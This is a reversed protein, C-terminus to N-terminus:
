TPLEEVVFRRGDAVWVDTADGPKVVSVTQVRKWRGTQKGKDDRVADENYVRISHRVNSNRISINTAM